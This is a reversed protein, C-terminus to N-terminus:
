KLLSRRFNKALEENAKKSEPTEIILGKDIFPRPPVRKGGIMSRKSTRKIGDNQYQGYRNMQVGDKSQKISNRLRGTHVLPKISSTKMGDANPSLGERRIETTSDRLQEYKGKELAQKIGAAVGRGAGASYKDLIGPM